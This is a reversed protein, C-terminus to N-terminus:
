SKQLIQDLSLFLKMGVLCIVRSQCTKLLGVVTVWQPCFLETCNLSKIETGRQLICHLEWNPSQIESIMQHMQKENALLGSCSRCIINPEQMITVHQKPFFPLNRGKAVLSLNLSYIFVVQHDLSLVFISSFKTGHIYKYFIIIQCHRM